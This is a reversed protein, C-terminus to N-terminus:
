DSETKSGLTKGTSTNIFHLRACAPCIVAEYIRAEDKEQKDLLTQVDMDTEPCRFKILDNMGRALDSQDSVLYPCPRRITESKTRRVLPPSETVSIVNLSPRNTRAVNCTFDTLTSGFFGPAISTDYLTIASIM